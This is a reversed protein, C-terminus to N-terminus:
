FARSLKGRAVAPSIKFSKRLFSMKNIGLCGKKGFCDITSKYVKCFVNIHKGKDVHPRTARLHLSAAYIKYIDALPVKNTGSYRLGDPGLEKWAEVLVAPPLVAFFVDSITATRRVNALRAGPTPTDIKKVTWRCSNPDIDVWGDKFRQESRTNKMKRGKELESCAKSLSLRRKPLRSVSQLATLM